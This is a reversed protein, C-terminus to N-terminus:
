SHIIFSCTSFVRTSLFFDVFLSPPWLILLAPSVRFVYSPNQFCWIEGLVVPLRPLVQLVARSSWFSVYDRELGIGWFHTMPILWRFLNMLFSLIHRLSRDVLLDGDILGSVGFNKFGSTSITWWRRLLMKMALCCIALLM